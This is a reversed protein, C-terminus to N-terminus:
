KIKRAILYLYYKFWSSWIVAVALLVFGSISPAIYVVLSAIMSCIFLFLNAIIVPIIFLYFKEVGVHWTRKLIEKIEKRPTFVAYCIPTLYVAIAFLILVSLGTAAPKTVAFLLLSILAIGGLWLLNLKFFQKFFKKNLRQGSVFGWAIGKFITFVIVSLLWFLAFSLFIKAKFQSLLLGTGQMSGELQAFDAAKTIALLKGPLAFLSGLSWALLKAFLFAALIFAAYFLFDALIVWIFRKNLRKFSEIFLTKKM